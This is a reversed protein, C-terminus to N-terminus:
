RRARPDARALVSAPVLLPLTYRPQGGPALSVALFCGAVAWRLGRVVAPAAAEGVQGRWALPLLVVWPLFNVLGRPVNLLWPGLHFSQNVEMRGALQAYWVGGVRQADTHRLYPLAWAFFIGLMLVVGALHAPNWLDRLRGSFWLVATVVAYFFLLHTPGKALLGLGLVGWPLVWTRLPTRPGGAAEAQWAGLWLLLAVGYLSLYLAEIEALRGKEMLGINTLM